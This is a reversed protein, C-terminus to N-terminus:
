EFFLQKIIVKNKNYKDFFFFQFSIIKLHCVVVEFRRRVLRPGCGQAADADAGDRHREPRSIRERRRRAPRGRDRGDSSGRRQPLNRLVLLQLLVQGAPGPQADVAALLGLKASLKTALSIQFYLQQM